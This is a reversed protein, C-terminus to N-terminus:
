KKYIIAWISYIYGTKMAVISRAASTDTALLVFDKGRIGMVCEMNIDLNFYTIFIFLYETFLVIWVNVCIKVYMLKIINSALKIAKIKLINMKLINIM